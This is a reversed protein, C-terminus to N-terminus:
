INKTALLSKVKVELDSIKFPKELYDDAKCNKSIEELDHSASFLIIPINNYEKSSKLKRIIEDGTIGDMWLDILILDPPNNKIEDLATKSNKIVIVEYGQEELILKTLDSIGDDDECVIIKLSM